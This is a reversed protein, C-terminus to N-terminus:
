SGFIEINIKKVKKHTTSYSYKRNAIEKEFFLVFQHLNFDDIKKLGTFTDFFEITYM